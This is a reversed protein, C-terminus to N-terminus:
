RGHKRKSPHAKGKKNLTITEKQKIKHNLDKEVFIKNGTFPDEETYYMIASWTSPLPIFIQVQEPLLFLNQSIFSKLSVMDNKTCGPHAAIFYYTLFIDKDIKTKIDNFNKIFTILTDSSPKKMLKLVHDTTHEPAIKMQGSIHHKIIQTLYERGAKKDENILDYRIGSAIFVRKIKPISQIKNLLHIQREHNVKLTTCTEPFLCKKNECSGDKKKKSCDFGYMNATAGGVNNIIGKFDKHEIYNHAEKLISKESRSIIHRGQHVAISCFSCEGYCGRHTTISFRVTDLARIKGKSAYYPHPDQTFPLDYIDDIEKESLNEQPPNQILYRNGHKQYLGQATIPDSNNYMLHFMKIFAKKDEFCKEYSPLEIYEDLPNQDIYCLGRIDNTETKNKLAQALQIITKEGMGYVLYDAKADFLISRRLKNDWFDYHTLRRLSAEIGGIVFPVTEKFNQRIANVYAIVARNPRLNNIEGPTMDDQKRRKKSATYNAVMSDVLGGTIGWFLKPEGLRTIDKNDTLDPQAIIAVKFGHSQLIRGIVTAGSSPVDIYTDGTILIVDPQNWQLREIEEVTTPLFHMETTETKM